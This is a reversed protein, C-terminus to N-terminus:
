KANLNSNLSCNASIIAAVHADDSPTGLNTSGLGGHRISLALSFPFIPPFFVSFQQNATQWYGFSALEAVV